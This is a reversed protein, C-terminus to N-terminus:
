EVENYKKYEKDLDIDQLITIAKGLNKIDYNSSDEINNLIDLAQELKTKMETISLM